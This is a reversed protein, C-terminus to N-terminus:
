RPLTPQPGASSSGRGLVQRPLRDRRAVWLTHERSVATEADAVFAAFNEETTVHPAQAAVLGLEHATVAYAQALGQHERAQVWALLAAAVTAFVGTANVSTTPKFVLYIAIAVAVAQAAIILSIFTHERKTNMKAKATYWRRQDTVRGDLYAQKRKDLDLNRVARMQDTIQQGDGLELLPLALLEGQALVAQLADTFQRDVESAARTHEFPEACTMYRWALSKVSEAAARGGYWRQRDQRLHVMLAVFLGVMLVVAAACRVARAIAEDHVDPTALAAGVVLLM